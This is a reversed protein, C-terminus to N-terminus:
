VDDDADSLTKKQLRREHIKDKRYQRRADPDDKVADPFGRQQLEADVEEVATRVTRRQRLAGVFDTLPVRAAYDREFAARTAWRVYLTMVGPQRGGEAYFELVLQPDRMAAGEVPFVRDRREVAKPAHPSLDFPRRPPAVVPGLQAHAVGLLCRYGYFLAQVGAYTHQVNAPLQVRLAGIPASSSNARVDPAVPPRDVRAGHTVVATVSPPLRFLPPFHPRMEDMCEYAVDEDMAQAALQDLFARDVPVDASFGGGPATLLARAAADEGRRWARMAELWADGQTHQGYARDLAGVLAPRLSCRHLLRMLVNRAAPGQDGMRATWADLRAHDAPSLFDHRAYAADPTLPCVLDELPGPVCIIPISDLPLAADFRAALEPNYAVAPVGLFADFLPELGLELPFEETPVLKAALVVAARHTRDLLAAVEPPVGDAVTPLQRRAREGEALAATDDADDQGFIVRLAALKDAMDRAEEDRGAAEAARQKASYIDVLAAM